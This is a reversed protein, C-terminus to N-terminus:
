TYDLIDTPSTVNAVDGAVLETPFMDLMTLDASKGLYPQARKLAAKNYLNKNSKVFNTPVSNKKRNVYIKSIADGLSESEVGGGNGGTVESSGIIITYITEVSCGNTNIGSLTLPFSGAESFEFIAEDQNQFLNTGEGPLSWSYSTFHQPNSLSFSKSISNDSSSITSMNILAETNPLVTVQTTETNSGFTNTATLTVLYTGSVAYSKTPNMLISSAGDGFNWSYSIPNTPQTEPDTNSTNNFIFANDNLCENDNVTFEAKPADNSITSDALEPIFNACKVDGGNQTFSTGIIQGLIDETNVTRNIAAFPALLTGYITNAGEINLETTNYFNYIIYPADQDAFGAQSWVSWNFTGPANVNLVLVKASNPHNQSTFNQVANLDAGTVNMYNIGNTLFIEVDNPLNTDSISNGANDELSANQVNESMSIANTRLRQFALSFDILNQAFVPNIGSSANFDTANGSLQVYSAANYDTGPTVRIPTPANLPDAYWANSGNSAGIQAYQTTNSIDINGSTYNIQGGVLLGVKNGNNSFCGCDESAIGYDGNITLNGGAALSGNTNGNALAVNNEVFISFCDAPTTPHYLEGVPTVTFTVDANTNNVSKASPTCDGDSPIEYRIVVETDLNVDDPTYTFGNITGSGSVMSWSGGSPNATLTKTQNESITDTSTTNEIPICVPTVIFTVDDTTATCNADAEITYRITISTNTNIDIPTYISGNIDGSGSIISWNGGSPNGTLTKTENETISTTTTTNEAIITCVPAITFTIDPNGDAPNIDTIIASNEDSETANDIGDGDFDAEGDNIGDGDTDILLPDTGILAEDADNIGDGDDDTDNNNDIGDGDTDIGFTIDPNGDTPNTDTIIASNEDSETANDIGDGDFDAEGDNIGDDDTDILLPDTGILAEDADNIGDGDDDTDNNNDIGDGDTDIGFTIDPNGDAPNIDTIIALNEDSETANDIGDNDFDAEGDNIGDDDTDILLPDTGILAEDADNIGDGDDDSDNNNDIGDGDTDIGFTIDPNGDTPNTDTITALNEDSESANDIGDNDFDAEGDNIGDANTDILLPDTGILAEDADNIGDGDDDTDTDDSIGDGDTDVAELSASTICEPDTYIIGGATNVAGSTSLQRGSLFVDVGSNCAGGHSIFNGKLHAAAGINVAGTVVNAGGIWFVNCRRAGNVLIIKSLAAVNFAGAFRMVFIANPDNEGDLTITGGLSGAAMDYVGPLLTEGAGFATTHIGTVPLAMLAIYAADIDLAAQTTLVDSIHEDGIHVGTTYGSITGAATGINGNIGSIGTNAAAGLNTYLAFQSLVGLVDVSPAPSCSTECFIQITSDTPPPSVITGVATGIAGSMTFMRGELVADAALNVAGVKAFLSGKIDASAALSIAGSAMYFVNSSKAGNILTVVAGAGVTMAGNFKIVFYANPNGQGDLTLSAGISGAGPISYVGPAITEGGGFAAVHTGAFDVFLDNLHIYLRLLDERAQSTVADANYTNNKFDPSDFGSILGFNTGADGTWDGGNVVDGAGTYAEFSSLVGLNLTQSYSTKSFLFTTTILFLLTYKKVFSFNTASVNSFSIFVLPIKKIM